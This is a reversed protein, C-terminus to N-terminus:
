NARDWLNDSAISRAYFLLRDADLRGESEWYTLDDIQQENLWPISGRWMAVVPHQM